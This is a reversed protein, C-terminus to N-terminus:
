RGSFFHGSIDFATKDPTKWKSVHKGFTFLTINVTNTNSFVIQYLTYFLVFEKASSSQLDQSETQRAKTVVFMSFSIFFM